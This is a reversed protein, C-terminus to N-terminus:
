HPKTREDADADAPAEEAAAPAVDGPQRTATEIEPLEPLPNKPDVGLETFKRAGPLVMREMSGVAQNYAKMSGDLQKGVKILHGSFVSLRDYLDIALRRIEQAGEALALNRWGYAIAKLLAMLSTPTSLIVRQRLADELLGPNATLAASLFQEGPIFLIVFEPSNEFQAWYAKAALEKVRNAVNRAHRQMAARRAEEDESETAELYADLPTKVDVVVQGHDPLHIVLDPRIAGSDTETHAQENFDCHEVMGALEVIRRLTFEGWQGRVEPRRLAKVLRHTEQRLNEQSNAMAELQATISGFSEARSKEIVGIQEHTKTLADRIPKILESVAHEKASLAADAREQHKGLSERALRLFNDSHQALADNALRGFAGALRQEAQALAELREQAVAADSHLRTNLATIDHELRRRGPRTCLFVVLSGLLLGAAFTGGLVWNPDLEGLKSLWDLEM